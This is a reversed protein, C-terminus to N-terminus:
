AMLQKKLNPDTKNIVQPADVAGGEGAALKSAISGKRSATRSQARISNANAPQGNPLM